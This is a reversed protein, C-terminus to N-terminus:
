LKCANNQCANKEYVHILLIVQKIVTHLLALNVKWENKVLLCDNSPLVNEQKGFLSM